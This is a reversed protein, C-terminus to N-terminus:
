VPPLTDTEAPLDSAAPPTIVIVLPADLPDKTPPSTVILPPALASPAPPASLKLPPAERPDEPPAMERSDPLPGEEPEPLTRILDLSELSLPVPALPLMLISVPLAAFAPPDTDILAPAPAETEPLTPIATEEVLPLLPPEIESEAPAAVPTLDSPPLITTTEPVPEDTDPSM